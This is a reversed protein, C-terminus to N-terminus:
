SFMVGLMDRIYITIHLGTSGPQDFVGEMFQERAEGGGGGGKPSISAITLSECKSVLILVHIRIFTTKGFSSCALSTRPPFASSALCM